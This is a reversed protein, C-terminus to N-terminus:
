NDLLSRSLTFSLVKHEPEEPARSQKMENELAKTLSVEDRGTLSLGNLEGRVTVTVCSVLLGLSNSNLSILKTFLDNVRTNSSGTSLLVILSVRKIRCLKKISSPLELDSVDAVVEPTMSVSTTRM